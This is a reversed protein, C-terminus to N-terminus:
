NRFNQRINQWTISQDELFNEYQYKTQYREVWKVVNIMIIHFELKIYITILCGCILTMNNTAM